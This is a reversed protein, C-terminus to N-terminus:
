IRHLDRIKERTERTPEGTKALGNLAQFTRLAAQLQPGMQGDIRGAYYGLNKLRAQLGTVEDDPDMHGILVQITRGMITLIARDADPPVHDVRIIGESETEGEITRDGISLTYSIARRPKRSNEHVPLSSPIVQLVLAHRPSRLKFRHRSETAGSEEHRRPDPIFIWDDPLLIGPNRRRRKLEGNAPHNWITEALCGKRKALSYITEGQRICHWTGDTQSGRPVPGQTQSDPPTL